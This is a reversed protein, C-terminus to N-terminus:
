RAALRRLVEALVKVDALADHGRGPAPFGLLAPYDACSIQAPLSLWRRFLPLLDGVRGDFPFDLDHLACNERLINGDGGHSLLLADAGALDVLKELADPFAVGERDVRDQGIGTLAQVHDSLRPNRVPRVLCDLQGFPRFDLGADLCLAGIQFVERHEDPGAWGSAFSGPWSTVECDFVVVRGTMPLDAVPPDLPYQDRRSFAM